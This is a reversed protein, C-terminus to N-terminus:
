ADAPADDDKLLEGAALAVAAGGMTGVDGHPVGTPERERTDDDPETPEKAAGPKRTVAAFGDVDDLLPDGVFVGAYGAERLTPVQDPRRVGGQLFVSAPVPGLRRIAEHDPGAGGGEERRHDILVIGSAGQDLLKGPPVRKLLADLEHHDAYPYGLWIEGEAIELVDELEQGAMIDVRVTVREAAGVFLDMVDELSEPFADLWLLVNGRAVRQYLNHNPEISLRGGYDVMAVRGFRAFLHRVFGRPDDGGHLYPTPIARLDQPPGTAFGGAKVKLTPVVEM